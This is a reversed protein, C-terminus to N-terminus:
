FPIADDFGLEPQEKVTNQNEHKVNNKDDPIYDIVINKKPYVGGNPNTQEDRIGIQAKGCLRELEEPLHGNKYDEELGTAYCFHKVKKINLPIASFVLYDYIIHSKGNKDWVNLQIEAMPNGSKSTKRTSKIVEFSYIGNEILGFSNIEDDSMPIFNYSM